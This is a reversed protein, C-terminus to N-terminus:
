MKSQFDLTRRMKGTGNGSIPIVTKRGTEDGNEDIFVATLQQKGHIRCLLRGVEDACENMTKRPVNVAGILRICLTDGYYEVTVQEM